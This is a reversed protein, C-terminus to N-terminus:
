ETRLATSPDVRAARRAPLYSAAGAAAVLFLPVSIFTGADRPSVGYLLSAMWKSLVLSAGVGLAIGFAALVLGHNLFMREVSASTAGLATRIGIERTRQSVSYSIVGYIGVVGLLLAMAGAIALLVLTFSTRAMSRDQIEKLTRVRAVPMNPSVSWMAQRVEEAFKQTGARQSRVAFKGYRVFSEKQDWVEKVVVPWHAVKPAEESMGHHREDGVVGIM